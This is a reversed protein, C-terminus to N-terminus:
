KSLILRDLERVPHKWRWIDMYGKIENQLSILNIKNLDKYLDKVEKTLSIGLNKM